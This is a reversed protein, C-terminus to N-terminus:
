KGYGFKKIEVKHEILQCLVRTLMLILENPEHGDPNRGSFQSHRSKLSSPQSKPDPFTLVRELKGPVMVESKANDTHTVSALPEALVSSGGLNCEFGRFNLESMLQEKLMREERISFREYAEDFCSSLVNIMLAFNVMGAFATLCALV